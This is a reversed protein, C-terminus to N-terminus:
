VTSLYWQNMVQAKTFTKNMCEQSLTQSLGNVGSAPLQSAEATTVPAHGAPTNQTFLFPLLRM